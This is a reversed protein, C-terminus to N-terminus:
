ALMRRILFSGIAGILLVLAIVWAHSALRRCRAAGAKLADRGKWALYTLPGVPNDHRHLTPSGLIHRVDKPFSSVEANVVAAVAKMSKNLRRGWDSKGIGDLRAQLASEIDYIEALTDKAILVQPQKLLNSLVVRKDDLRDLAMSVTIAYPVSAIDAVDKGSASKTALRVLQWPKKLRKAVMTLAFPLASPHSAKFVNLSDLVARFQEGEFEEIKLPLAGNFAALADRSGFIVLMKSLDDFATPSSTYIALGAHIQAIGAPSAFMGELYRMVKSQFAEAAQQIERKKDALIYKKMGDTYDTAMAPLLNQTIWAWIAALSGRQIRGINAHEPAGDVLLPALPEFFYRSPSSVRVTSQGKDRFEARLTALLATGGPLGNGCVELRELEALLNGRAQVTMVQLYRRIREAQDVNQEGSKPSPPVM